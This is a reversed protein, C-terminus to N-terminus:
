DQNMRAFVYESAEVVVPSSPDLLGPADLSSDVGFDAYGTDVAASPQSWQVDQLTTGDALMRIKSIALDSRGSHAKALWRGARGSVGVAAVAAAVAVVGYM